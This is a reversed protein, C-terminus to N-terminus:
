GTVVKIVYMFAIGVIFLVFSMLSKKMDLEKHLEPILDSASIYIFTGAAFPILIATFSDTYGAILFGVIAGVIGTTATIFNYVLAKAKSFGGYILVGFDTIEQPVEHAVVALTTAIGLPVNIIFSAAIVIGDIFKHVADGILNMYTFMHVPCKGDHCHHWFLFREIIFFASFGALVSLSITGFSSQEVAEPILHLFAGGMLAGASFGVLLHLIKKLLKDNVALTIIGILSILSIALTAGIAWLLAGM